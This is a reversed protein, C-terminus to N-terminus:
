QVIEVLKLDFILAENPGVPPNGRTGFALEPSVFVQWTAGTKMLPLVEQWGKLVANVTFEEPVGRAFSSDFELGDIKSGRYHVKVTSEMGPRSGEGEDIVRYQVGSPLAVIGNKSLNKQLFEESKQQNEEALKQFAEAQEQRVKRQLETLMAVMEEAPVQPDRGASSDRIAAIITEVDFEAGRRKIDEGIDWGVAYSLKGKETSVDQAMAPSAMLVALVMLAFVLRM